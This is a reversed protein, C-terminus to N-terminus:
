RPRSAPLDAGYPLKTGAFRDDDGAESKAKALEAELETRVAKFAPDDYVNRLELPDAVLDYLEAQSKTPFRVLKHTRTRVGYHARVDHDGPDHYYRYYFSSRWDAPTPGDFLPRLSRGQAGPPAAAGAVDTITQALDLNLVMADSTRGAPVAAPWRMLFPIRISEEYMFRKDYWGHEGLFFGNDSAYIVLTDRALGDRDLRDLLRGVNRDLSDVCALYDGLYRRYKWILLEDGSILRPGREDTITVSEPIQDAHRRREADTAGPPPPIKLDRNRLHRAITMAAERAADTRTAYDDRLTAPEPIAPDSRRSETSPPPDWPRHPANHHCLLLFPRDAPREDLFALSLDTIVDTVYGPLKRRGDPGEFASDVYDGQGPLIRWRDFGQPISGLHWKGFLGTFYGADHLAHVFTPLSADFRNFVPVGNRHSHLGTLMTARSPTCIANVVFARDFRLGETALRDLHPTRNLGSGYASLARVAHDDSLIVM